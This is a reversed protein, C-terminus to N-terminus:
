EATRPPPGAKLERLLQAREEAEERLLTKRATTRDRVFEVVPLHAPNIARFLNVAEEFGTRTNSVVEGAHTHYFNADAGGGLGPKETDLFLVKRSGAVEIIFVNRPEVSWLAAEDIVEAFQMVLSLDESKLESFKGVSAEILPLNPIKEAVVLYNEDSLNDPMGPIHVLWQKLPYINNFGNDRIFNNIQKTYFVRSVNQFRSPQMPFPQSTITRATKDYDFTDYWECRPIRLVFNWSEKTLTATNAAPSLDTVEQSVCFENFSHLSQQAAANRAALRDREQQAATIGAEAALRLRNGAPWSVQVRKPAVLYTKFEEASLFDRIESVIAGPAMCDKLVIAKFDESEEMTLNMAQTNHSLPALLLAAM